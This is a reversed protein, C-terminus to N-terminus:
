HNWLPPRGCIKKKKVVLRPCVPPRCKKKKKVQSKSSAAAEESKKIRSNKPAPPLSFSYEKKEQGLWNEKKKYKSKKQRFYTISKQITFILYVMIALFFASECKKVRVQLMTYYGGPSFSPPSSILYKKYFYVKKIFFKKKYFNWFKDFNYKLHKIHLATHKLNWFKLIKQELNM